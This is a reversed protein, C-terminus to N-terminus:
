GAPCTLSLASAQSESGDGWGRAGSGKSGKFARNRRRQRASAQDFFRLRADLDPAATRAGPIVRIVDGASEWAIEDGPRIAHRDALAKPLTVQLKSTVKSM